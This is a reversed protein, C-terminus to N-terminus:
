LNEMEAQLDSLRNIYSDISNLGAAERIEAQIAQIEAVAKSLKNDDNSRRGQLLETLSRILRDALSSPVYILLQRVQEYTNLALAKEDLAQQLLDFLRELANARQQAIPLAFSAFFELYRQELQEAHRRQTARQSVYNGILAVTGGTVGSTLAVALASTDIAM